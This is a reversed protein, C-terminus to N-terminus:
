HESTINVIVVQSIESKHQSPRPSCNHKESDSLKLILIITYFDDNCLKILKNEHEYNSSLETM